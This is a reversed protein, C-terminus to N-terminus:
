AAPIARTMMLFSRVLCAVVGFLGVVGGGVRGAGARRLFPRKHVGTRRSSFYVLGPRIPTESSTPLILMEGLQSPM